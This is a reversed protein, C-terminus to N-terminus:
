KNPDMCVETFLTSSLVPFNKFLIRNELFMDTFENQTLFEKGKDYDEFLKQTLKHAALGDERDEETMKLAIKFIEAMEKKEIRGDGDIDFLEFMLRIKCFINPDSENSLYLLFEAFNINGSNDKDIVRFYHHAFSDAEDGFFQRLYEKFTSLGMLAKPSIKLYEKYSEKIRTKDFNTHMRLFQVEKEPLKELKNGM